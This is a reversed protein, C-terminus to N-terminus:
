LANQDSFTSTSPHLTQRCSSGVIQQSILAKKLGRVPEVVVVHRLARHRQEDSARV